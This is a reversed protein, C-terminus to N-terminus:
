GWNDINVHRFVAEMYIILLLLGSMLHMGYLALSVFTRKRLVLSGDAPFDILRERLIFILSTIFLILLSAQAGWFFNGHELRPGGEALFYAYFAAIL